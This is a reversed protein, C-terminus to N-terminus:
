GQAETASEETERATEDGGIASIETPSPQAEAVETLPFVEAPPQEVPQESPVEHGLQSTTRIDIRWGTLRAALSVNQGQRGIALSLQDESVIVTATRKDFNMIVTDLKAPSFANVLFETEDPSWPIIDVKEGRLEQTIASIRKGQQGICAGVADINPDKSVIAVKSRYGPTRVLDKIEVTGQRIEPVTAELLKRLLEKHTRSVIVIPEPSPSPERVEYIYVRVREGKQLNETPVQERRPLLIEVRDISLYINEHSDKRLVQGVVVTGVKDKYLEYVRRHEIERIRRQMEQRAIQMASRSFDSLPLDVRVRNGLQANPDIQCADELGIELHPNTPSEVVAKELAFKLVKFDLDLVAVIKPRIRKRSRRGMDRMFQKEYAIRIGDCMAGLVSELPLDKEKAIQQVLAVLEASMDSVEKHILTAFSFTLAFAVWKHLLRWRLKKDAKLKVRGVALPFVERNSNVLVDAIIKLKTVAYHWVSIRNAIVQDNSNEDDRSYEDDGQRQSNSPQKTWMLWRRVLPSTIFATENGLGWSPNLKANNVVQESQKEDDKINFRQEQKRPSCGQM